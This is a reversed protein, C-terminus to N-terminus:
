RAQSGARVDFDVGARELTALLNLLRSDRCRIARCRNRTKDNFACVPFRGFRCSADPSQTFRRRFHLTAWAVLVFTFAFASRLVAGAFSWPTMILGGFFLVIVACGLLTRSLIKFPKRQLFPQILTPLYLVTGISMFWPWPLAGVREDYMAVSSLATSGMLMGAVMSTCGLCLILRGIRLVHNDYCAGAPHHAFPPLTIPIARSEPEM